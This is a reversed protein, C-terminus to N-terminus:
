AFLDDVKQRLAAMERRLEAMESELRAIRADPEGGDGQPAYAAYAAPAV